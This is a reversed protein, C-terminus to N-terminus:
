ERGIVQLSGLDPRVSAPGEIVVSELVVLEIRHKPAGLAVPWGTSTRPALDQRQIDVDIVVSVHLCLFHDPGPDSNRGENVCQFCCADAALNM